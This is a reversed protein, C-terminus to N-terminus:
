QIVRDHRTEQEKPSTEKWSTGWDDELAREVLIQIHEGSPLFDM